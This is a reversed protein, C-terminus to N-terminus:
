RSRRAAGARRGRKRLHPKKTGAAAKLYGTRFTTFARLMGHLFSEILIVGGRSRMMDACTACLGIDGTAAETISPGVWLRWNLRPGIDGMFDYGKPRIKGCVECRGGSVRKGM